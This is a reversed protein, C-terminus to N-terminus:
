ARPRVKEVLSRAAGGPMRRVCGLVYEWWQDGYPVYSRVKFGERVLEEQLEHRVGFLMQFEFGHQDLGAEAAVRRALQIAHQDHTAIAPHSGRRLLLDLDREFAADIESKKRYIEPGTEWYGGKTLRIRAGSAVLRELDGRNRHLYSQLVVGVADGYTERMEEFLSLTRATYASEEMDIRVFNGHERAADLVRRLQSRCLEEDIDLGLQTLKISVNADLREEAIRRLSGVAADAAAVARAEDRIHTGVNSLTTKIGLTGLSRITAIGAELSDGAVFRWALDRVGPTSMAAKRVWSLRALTSLQQRLM